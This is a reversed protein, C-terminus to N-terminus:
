GQCEISSLINPISLSSCLFLSVHQWTSHLITPTIPSEANSVRNQIYIDILVAWLHKLFTKSKRSFLMRSSFSRNDTKKQIYKRKEQWKLLFMFRQELLLKEGDYLGSLPKIFVSFTKM